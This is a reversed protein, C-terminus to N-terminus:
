VTWKELANDIDDIIGDLREREDEDVNMKECAETVLFQIKVIIDKLVTGDPLNRNQEEFQLPRRDLVSEVVLRSTSIGLNDAIDKIQRWQHNNVSISRQRKTDNKM